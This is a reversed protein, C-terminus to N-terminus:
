AMSRLCKVQINLTALKPFFRLLRDIDTDLLRLRKVELSVIEVHNNTADTTLEEFGYFKSYEHIKFFIETANLNVLPELSIKDTCYSCRSADYEFVRM